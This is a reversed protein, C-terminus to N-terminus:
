YYRRFRQYVAWFFVGPILYVIILVFNIGEIQEEYILGLVDHLTRQHRFVSIVYRTELLGLVVFWLITLALFIMAIRKRNADIM